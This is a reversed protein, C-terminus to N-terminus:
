LSPLLIMEPIDQRLPGRKGEIYRDFFRPQQDNMPTPDLENEVSALM